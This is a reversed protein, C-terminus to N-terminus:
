AARNRRRRQVGAGVLGLVSWIAITSPEPVVSGELQFAYEVGLGRWGGSNFIGSWATEDKRSNMRWLWYQSTTTPPSDEFISIWYTKGGNLFIPSIDAELEYLPFGSRSFGVWVDNVAGLDRTAVIKTPDPAGREIPIQPNEPPSGDDEYIVLSFNRGNTGPRFFNWAGWWTVSELSADTELWFNDAAFQFSHVTDSKAYHDFESTRIEPVGTFPDGNLFLISAEGFPAFVGMSLLALAAHRTLLMGRNHWSSRQSALSIKEM